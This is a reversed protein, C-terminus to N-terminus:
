TTSREVITNASLIHDCRGFGDARLIELQKTTVWISISAADSTTGILHHPPNTRINTLANWPLFVSSSRPLPIWPRLSIGRQHSTVRLFCDRVTFHSEGLEVRHAIFSSQRPLNGVTEVALSDWISRRLHWWSFCAYIYYAAGMCILCAVITLTLYPYSM